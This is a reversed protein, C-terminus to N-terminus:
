DVSASRGHVSARGGYIPANGEHIARVKLEQGMMAKWEGDEPILCERGADSSCLVGRSRLVLCWAARAYYSLPTARVITCRLSATDDTGSM